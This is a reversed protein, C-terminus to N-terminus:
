RQSSSQSIISNGLLQMCCDTRHSFNVSYMREFGNRQKGLLPPFIAEQRHTYTHTHPISVSYGLGRPFSNIRKGEGFVVVLSISHTLFPPASNRAGSDSLLQFFYLSGLSSVVEPLAKHNELSPTTLLFIAEFWKPSFDKTYLMTIIINKTHNNFSFPPNLLCTGSAMKCLINGAGSGPTKFLSEAVQVKTASAKQVLEM